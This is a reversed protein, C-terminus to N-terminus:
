CPTSNCAENGTFVLTWVPRDGQPKGDKWRQVSGAKRAKLSQRPKPEANQKASAATATAEPFKERAEIATTFQALEMRAFESFASSFTSEHPLVEGHKWGCILRLQEDSRLRELLDTTRPFNYVARAVFACAIAVRDRQPRGNWGQSLPVFRVLPIMELIAVLRRSTESLEGTEAQLIPFLESQLLHHFHSLQQRLTFCCSVLNRNEGDVIWTKKARAEGYKQLQSVVASLKQTGVFDATASSTM